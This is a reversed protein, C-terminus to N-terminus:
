VLGARETGSAADLQVTCCLRFVSLYPAYLVRSDDDGGIWQAGSWGAYLADSSMLGTEFTSSKEHKSGKNNWVTLTWTYRTSPKLPQGDYAINIFSSGKRRGTDWVTTGKDNAVRIRYATQRCARQGQAAKMQWGFRPHQMDLGLPATEYEVTMRGIEVRPAKTTAALLCTVSIMITLLSCLIRRNM